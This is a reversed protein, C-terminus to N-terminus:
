GNRFDRFNSLMYNETRSSLVPRADQFRLFARKRKM